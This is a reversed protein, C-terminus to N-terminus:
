PTFFSNTKNRRNFVAVFFSLIKLVRTGPKVAVEGLYPIFSSGEKSTRYKLPVLDQVCHGM